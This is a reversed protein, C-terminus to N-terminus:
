SGVKESSSVDAMRSAKVHDRQRSLWEEYEEETAGVCDPLFNKFEKRAGCIKCLGRSVRDEAEEIVWHHKCQTEAEVEQITKRRKVVARSTM